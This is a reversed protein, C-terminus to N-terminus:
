CTARGGPDPGGPRSRPADVSIQLLESAPEYELSMSEQVKPARLAWIGAGPGESRNYQPLEKPCLEGKNPATPGPCYVRFEEVVGHKELEGALVLVELGVELRISPRWNIRSLELLKWLDTWFGSSGELLKWESRSPSLGKNSGARGGRLVELGKRFRRDAELGGPRSRTSLSFHENRMSVSSPEYKLSM